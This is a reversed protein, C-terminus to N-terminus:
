LDGGTDSPYGANFDCAKAAVRFASSSVDISAPIRILTGNGYETLGPGEGGRAPPTPSVIPDPFNPVGHDRMCETTQLAAAIQQETAPTKPNGGPMLHGCNTEASKYTQSNFDIRTGSYGRWWREWARPFQHRRPRAHM